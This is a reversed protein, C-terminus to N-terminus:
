WILRERELKERSWWHRSTDEIQDIEDQSAGGIFALAALFDGDEDEDMSVQSQESM